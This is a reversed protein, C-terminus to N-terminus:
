NSNLIDMIKDLNPTLIIETRRNKARGEATNNNAIPQAEGRGSAIIRKDNIKGDDTLIRVISIARLVSLEWNDKIKEGNMPKNDTHGEVMINVDKQKNLAAALKLLADKGKPDVATSGSKFLLKEALSVYVKGNRNEVKIDLDDFGALARSIADKLSRTISDKSNLESELKRLRANTKELQAREAEAKALAANLELEKQQLKTNKEEIEKSLRRTQEDLKNGLSNIFAQNESLQFQLKEISDKLKVIQNNMANIQGDQEVIRKQREESTASCEKLLSQLKKESVLKEQELLKYKKATVCSAISLTPLIWLFIKKMKQLFLKRLFTTQEGSLKTKCM